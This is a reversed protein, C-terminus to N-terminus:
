LATPRYRCGTEPDHQRAGALCGAEGPQDVRMLQSVGGTIRQGVLTDICPCQLVIEPVARDRVRHAVALKRGIAEGAQPLVSGRELDGAFRGSTLPRAIRSAPRSCSGRASRRKLQEAIARLIM